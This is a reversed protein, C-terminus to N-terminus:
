GAPLFYPQCRAPAGADIARYAFVRREWGGVPRSLAPDEQTHAVDFRVGGRVYSLSTDAHSATYARLSNFTLLYREQAYVNLSGDASSVVEVLDQQRDTWRWGTPVLLGNSRGPVTVLNSYMNWSYTTKVGVYPTVGNLLALAPIVLLWRAAPLVTASDERSVGFQRRTLLYWGIVLAFGLSFLRWVANRLDGIASSWAPSLSFGQAVLAFVLAATCVWRVLRGVAMASKGLRAAVAIFFDAPLFLIYLAYVLSSFDAFSHYGDLGIIGHFVVALLVSLVRTRRVILLVVVSCEITIVAVAIFRGWFPSAATDLSHWGLSHGTEDTFYTGCSVLPNLFARNVKSLATFSYFVFFVARAVPELTAAVDVDRLSRTRAVPVALACVFGVSIFTVVLWHNGMTPAELWALVPVLASLTALAWLRRPCVMLVIALLAVAAGWWSAGTPDVFMRYTPRANALHFLVSLGWLAAFWRWRSTM